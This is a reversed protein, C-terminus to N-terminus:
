SPEQWGHGFVLRSVQECKKLDLRDNTRVGSEMDLWFNRDDKETLPLAALTSTVTDASVGGSYGCFVSPPGLPPWRTPRHGLGFSVDYLWDVRPEDPFGQQCQLAPRMGLASAFRHCNAIADESSGKRSHNIQLRSFGSLHLAGPPRGEAIAAAPAGCLHASLRLGSSQVELREELRPFLVSDEQEPDILVGWEVPYRASLALLGPILEVCDVGTFTVFAPRITPSQHM